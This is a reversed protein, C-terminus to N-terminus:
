LPATLEGFAAGPRGAEGGRGPWDNRRVAAEAACGAYVRTFVTGKGPTSQATLTGKMLEALQKCIFLGLGGTGSGYNTFINKLKEDTMGIGTDTIRIVLLAFGEKRKSTVAVTVGGERTFKFANALIHHCIQKIRLEDGMLSVPLKDDVALRYQIHRGEALFSYHSILEGIFKPVDYKVPNLKLKGSEIKLIDLIDNIVDFIKMGEHNITELDSKQEPKIETYKSLLSSIRIINHIPNAMARSINSLFATRSETSEKLAYMLKEIEAKREIAERTIKEREEITIFVSRSGIFTLVVTLVASTAFSALLIIVRMSGLQQDVDDREMLSFLVWPFGPVEGYCGMLHKGEYDYHFAGNKKVLAEETVDAVPRSAPDIRAENVPNYQRTVLDTDPHAIYTGEEDVLYSYGGPMSNKLGTIISSLASAGDKRAILVGVVPADPRDDRFIPVAFLVVMRGSLRSFVLDINRRGAMAQQFYERDGVEVTADDLVYHSVGDPSIMAMDLAGIRAVDPTLAAQVIGWDMTRVRQRTAIEGLVDLQNDMTVSLLEANSANKDTIYGLITKELISSSVQLIVIDIGASAILVVAGIILPIKVNLKM